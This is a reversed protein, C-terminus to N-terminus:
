VQNMFAFLIYIAYSSVMALGSIKGIEGKYRIMLGILVAAAFMIWMDFRTIDASVSVPKIGFIGEESKWKAAKVIESTFIIKRLSDSITM